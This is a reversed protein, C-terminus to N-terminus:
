GDNQLGSERVVGVGSGCWERVVGAGRGCWGPVRWGGGRVGGRGGVGGGRAGGGASAMSEFVDEAAAAQTGLKLAMFRARPFVHSGWLKLRGRGGPPFGELYMVPNRSDLRALTGQLSASSPLPPTRAHSVLPPSPLPGPM